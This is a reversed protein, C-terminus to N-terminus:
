GTKQEIMSVGADIESKKGDRLAEHKAQDDNEEQQMKKLNEKFADSMGRLTGYIIDSPAKIVAKEDKVGTQIFGIDREHAMIKAMIKREKENHLAWLVDKQKKGLRLAKTIESGEDLTIEQQMMAKGTGKAIATVAGDIQNISQRSSSEADNFENMDKKRMASAEELEKQNEDVEKNISEIETNLQQSKARLSEIEATLQASLETNDEIAKTLVKDNQKCWCMMEENTDEDDDADKEMQEKMDELLKVVKSVPGKTKDQLDAKGKAFFRAAEAAALTSGESAVDRNM